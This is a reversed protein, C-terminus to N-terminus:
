RALGEPLAARAQTPAADGSRDVVIGVVDLATLRAHPRVTAVLGLGGPRPTVDVVEGVGVGSVYPRGGRSGFTVLEDGPELEAHRNFLTLEPLDDGAGDLTGIEGTGTMRVGVSSLPDALLLVTATGATVSVVRGVLGAADLVTMDPRVGDRSGADVTVTWSYGRDAALAIVRAPVVEQGAAAGAAAVAPVAEELVSTRNRALLETRLRRNQEALEAIREEASRADTMAGLTGTVPGTVFAVGAELPALVTAAASRVPHLPSDADGSRSDISVAAFSVVLLVGLVGRTGKTDRIV